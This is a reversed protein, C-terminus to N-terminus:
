CTAAEEAAWIQQFEPSNKLLEDLTGQGDLRGEKLVFIRDARRLVARRHSVALCTRGGQLVRDWLATETELDLASSLDDVVLLQPHRVLARAAAVRQMQGGSLRAGKPGIVTELGLEMGALDRELVAMQLAVQLDVDDEPLGLLINERLPGSFLRPAQPTYATHPPTFFAAPDPVPTGSWLIEGAQPPLQGLIARLLTSKGSGIRGTIVTVAGPAMQLDIESVGPTGDPHTYSLGKIALGTFPSDALAAHIPPPDAQLYTPRHTLLEDEGGDVLEAMRGISIGAQRTTAIVRGVFSLRGVFRPMTVLFLSLEGITLANDQVAYAALVLIVGIGLNAVNAYIFSDTLFRTLANRVEAKRRRDGMERFRAGVRAEAQAAKVAQVGGLLEGLLGTTAESAQRAATYSEELRHYMLRIILVIAVGLLAVVLGMRWDTLFFLGFALILYVATGGSDIWDDLTEMVQDVDGGFRSVAASPSIPLPSPRGFLRSRLMNARLLGEGTAIFRAFIPLSVVQAAIRGVESAGVSALLTWVNPGVVAGGSLADFFRSTFLAVLLPFAFFGIYTVMSWLYLGPSYGILRLLSGVTHRSAGQIASRRWLFSFPRAIRASVTPQPSHVTPTKM